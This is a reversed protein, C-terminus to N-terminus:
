APRRRQRFLPSIAAAAAFLAVACAVITPNTPWDVVFSVILGSFTAALSLGGSILLVPVLRRSLLLAAAPLAALYAFVLLAGAVRSAASVALSLAVFFATDWLRVKLGLVRAFDPDIMTHLIPRLFLLVFLVSPVLILSMTRLDRASALILDGYLLMNVENLGFGSQAVFLVSIGAAAVFIVGLVADRPLRQERVPQALFVAAAVTLVAAGAMPPLHFFLAMAVGCAAVEALTIGLFVVRRLLILVGLFACTVGILAGGAFAWPFLEFAQLAQNFM